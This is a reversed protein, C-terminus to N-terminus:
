GADGGAGGAEGVAPLPTIKKGRDEPRQRRNSESDDRRLCPDLGRQSTVKNMAEGRPLNHTDQAPPRTLPGGGR